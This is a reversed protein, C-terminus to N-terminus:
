TKYGVASVRLVYSGEALNKFQFQGAENSVTGKNSGVILISAYPIDEETDKEIVHGSIMFGERIPNNACVVQMGMVLALLVFLSKKM